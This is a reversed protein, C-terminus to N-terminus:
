GDIKKYKKFLPPFVRFQKYKLWKPRQVLSFQGYRWSGAFTKKYKKKMQVQAMRAAGCSLIARIEM